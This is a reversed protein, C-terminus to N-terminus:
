DCGHKRRTDILYQIKWQGSFKVLVFNNVGCHSFVNNMYFRYPTWVSALVGDVQIADFVIREDGTNKPLAAIVKLFESFNEDKVMLKGDTNLKITQFVPQDTFCSKFLVTDANRIATFVANVTTKISDQETQAQLTHVYCFTVFLFVLKQM